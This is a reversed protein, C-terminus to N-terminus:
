TPKVSSVEPLLGDWSPHSMLIISLHQLLATRASTDSAFVLRTFCPYQSWVVEVKVYIGRQLNSYNPVPQLFLSGIEREQKYSSVTASEILSFSSKGAELCKECRNRFSPIVAHSSSLRTWVGTLKPLVLLTGEADFPFNAFKTKIAPWFLSGFLQM